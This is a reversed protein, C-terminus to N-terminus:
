VHAEYEEQSSMISAQLVRIDDEDQEAQELAASSGELLRKNVSMTYDQLHLVIDKLNAIEQALLEYRANMEDFLPKQQLPTATQAVIQPQQQLVPQQQKQALPQAVSLEAVTKELQLIRRGYIDIVQPLTLQTGTPVQTQTPQVYPQGSIQAALQQQQPTLQKAPQTSRSNTPGPSPPQPLSRKRASALASSM